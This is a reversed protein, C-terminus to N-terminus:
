MWRRRTGVGIAHDLCLSRTWTGSRWRPHPRTVDVVALAECACASCMGRSRKTDGVLVADPDNEIWAWVTRRENVAM